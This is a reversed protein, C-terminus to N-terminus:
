RVSLHTPHSFESVNHASIKKDISSALANIQAELAATDKRTILPKCALIQEGDQTTLVRGDHTEIPTTVEGAFIENKFDAISQIVAQLELGSVGPVNVSGYAM